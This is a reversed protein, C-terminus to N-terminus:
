TLLFKHDGLFLKWQNLRISLFSAPNLPPCYNPILLLLFNNLFLKAKSNADNWTEFYSVVIPVLCMSIFM